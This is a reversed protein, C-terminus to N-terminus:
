QPLRAPDFGTGPVLETGDKTMRVEVGAESLARKLADM